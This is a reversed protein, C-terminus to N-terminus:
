RSKFYNYLKNFMTCIVYFVVLLNSIQVLSLITKNEYLKYSDIFSINNSISIYMFIVYFLLILGCVIYNFIKKYKDIKSFLTTIFILTIFTVIVFYLM